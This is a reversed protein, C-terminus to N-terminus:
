AGPKRALVVVCVPGDSVGELLPETTSVIRLDARKLAVRHEELTHPHYSVRFSVGNVARFSREFGREVWSPHFDSYLLSGGSRLARSLRGLGPRSIRSTASWSHLLFSTSPKAQSRCRVRTRASSLRLAAALAHSCPRRSTWVWLPPCVPTKSSMLTAVRGPESTSRALFRSRGFHLKWRSQEVRMLANHARPPYCAAWKTYAAQPALKQRSFSSM